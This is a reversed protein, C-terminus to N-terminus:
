EFYYGARVGYMRPDTLSFAGLEFTGLQREDNLNKLFAQVYWSEDAAHYTLTFDTRTFAEQEIQTATNGDTVVYSDSYKLAAMASIRSGSTFYFDRTVAVRGSFEPSRDLQTGKFNVTDNNQLPYFDDYEANLYSFSFDVTTDEFGRYNGELEMGRVNAKPINQTVQGGTEKVLGLQLNEYDYYFGTLSYYLANDLADGKLGAEYSVITEPEYYFPVPSEDAPSGDNFGGAKYGTTINAYLMTSDAVDYEVGLKWTTEGGSIGGGPYFGEFDSPAAFSGDNMSFLQTGVRSKKDDSYRIGATARFEDSFPYTAQAFAAKTEANIHLDYDLSFGYNVFDLSPATFAYEDFYYLGAVWQITEDPLSSLRLEHSRQDHDQYTTFDGNSYAPPETPIDNKAVRQRWESERYGFLYTLQAWPLESNLEVTMGSAKYNDYTDFGPNQYRLSDDDNQALARETAISAPGNENTKAHDFSVYLSTDNGFHTQLSARMAYDDQDDLSGNGDRTETFGDRKNMSGAFRVATDDTLPINVMGNTRTTDYNGVEAAVEAEFYDKPRESVVNIVGATANRGYLTGQPGRLVEVRQIDFMTLSQETFRGIYIGDLNYATSPDGKETFDASAVGRISFGAVGVQVNPLVNPLDSSDVVGQSALQKGSVATIAVPASSLTQSRRLATVVIQEYEKEDKAEESAQPAPQSAQTEVEQAWVPASLTTAIALAVLSHKSRITEM